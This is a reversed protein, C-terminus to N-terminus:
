GADTSLGSQIFVRRLEELRRAETSLVKEGEKTVIYYRRRSDVRGRERHPEAERVWGDEAMRRIAAYLSSTGIKMEGDTRNAIAAIVAYGHSPGDRLSLLIQIDMASLPVHRRGKGTM